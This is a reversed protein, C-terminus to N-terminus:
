IFGDPSFPHTSRLDRETGDNEAADEARMHAPSGRRGAALVPIGASGRHIGAEAIQSLREGAQVDTGGQYLTQQGAAQEAQTNGDPHVEKGRYKTLGKRYQCYVGKRARRGNTFRRIKEICWRKVAGPRRVGADSTGTQTCSTNGPMAPRIGNHM